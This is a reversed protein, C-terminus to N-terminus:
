VHIKYLSRQLQGALSAVNVVRGKSHRLLPLFAKTVRVVGLVNVDLIRQFQDVSCWEIETFAAIGANNVVAWLDTLLCSM